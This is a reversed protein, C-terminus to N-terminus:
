APIIKTPTFREYCWKSDVGMQIRTSSFHAFDTVLWTVDEPLHNPAFEWITSINNPPTRAYNNIIATAYMKTNTKCSSTIIKFITDAVADFMM